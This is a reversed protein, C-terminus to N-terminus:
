TNLFPNNNEELLKFGAEYKECLSLFNDIDTKDLKFWERNIKKDSFYRHLNGEVKFPYNSSFEKVVELKKDTGTQLQKLRKDKNQGTIGIKYVINEPDIIIDKDLASILYIKRM